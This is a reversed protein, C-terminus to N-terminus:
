RTVSEEVSLLSEFTQEWTPLGHAVKYRYLRDFVDQRLNLWASNPYYDDMMKKWVRVPLRFSAEKEWPIQCVQLTSDKGEYFVSGSFLLCLPVDGDDLAHFYKTAAVNFDFTCPVPLDVVTEGIFPLVVVGTHVWLM